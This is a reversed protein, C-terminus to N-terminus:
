KAAEKQFNDLLDNILEDFSPNSENYKGQKLAATRQKSLILALRGYTKDSIRISKGISKM